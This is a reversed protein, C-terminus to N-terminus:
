ALWELVQKARQAYTHQSMVLESGAQGVAEALEPNDLLHKIQPIVDSSSHYVICNVDPDFGQELLEPEYSTVLPTGTAPIEFCRMNMTDYANADGYHTPVNLGVRAMRYTDAAAENFVGNTRSLSFHAGVDALISVRQLDRMYGVFAVDTIKPRKAPSYGPTVALPLWHGGVRQQDRKQAHCVLAGRKLLEATAPDEQRREHPWRNDILWVMPRGSVILGWCGLTRQDKAFQADAGLAQLASQLFYVPHHKDPYPQEPM